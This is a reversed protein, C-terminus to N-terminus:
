PNPDVVKKTEEQLSSNSTVNFREQLVSFREDAVGNRKTAFEIVKSTEFTKAPDGPDALTLRQGVHLSEARVVFTSPTGHALEFASDAVVVGDGGARLRYVKGTSTRAYAEKIVATAVDQFYLKSNPNLLLAKLIDGNFDEQVRGQDSYRLQGGILYLGTVKVTPDIGFSEGLDAGITVRFNKHETAVIKGEAERASLVGLKDGEEARHRVVLINGNELEILAGYLSRVGRTPLEEVSEGKLAQHLDIQYGPKRVRLAHHSERSGLSLSVDEYLPRKLAAQSLEGAGSTPDPKDPSTRRHFFDFLGM